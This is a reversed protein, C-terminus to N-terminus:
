EFGRKGSFVLSIWIINYTTASPFGFEAIVTIQILINKLPGTFFEINLIDRRNIIPRM